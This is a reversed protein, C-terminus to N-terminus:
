GLRRMERTTQTQERSQREVYDQIQKKLGLNPVLLCPERLVASTVPDTIDDQLQECKQYWMRIASEEYSNGTENIVPNVMLEQTIPCFFEDPVKVDTSSANHVTSITSTTSTAASQNFLTAQHNSVNMRDSSQKPLQAIQTVCQRVDRSLDSIMSQHRQMAQSLRDLEQRSEQRAQTVDNRLQNMASSDIARTRSENRSCKILYVAAACIIGAVFVEPLSVALASGITQMGGVAYSGAKLAVAGIAKLLFFGLVAVLSVVTMASVAIFGSKFKSM